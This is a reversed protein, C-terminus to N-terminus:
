YKDFPQLLKLGTLTTTSSSALTRREEALDRAEADETRIMYVFLVTSVAVFLLWWMTRLRTSNHQRRTVSHCNSRDPSKRAMDDSSACSAQLM